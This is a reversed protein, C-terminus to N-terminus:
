MRNVNVQETRSRHGRADSVHSRLEIRAGIPANLHVPIAVHGNSDATGALHFHRDPPHMGPPGPPRVEVDLDVRAGPETMGEFNFVGPVPQDRQPSTIRIGLEHHAHPRPPPPQMPHPPHPPHFDQSPPGNETQITVTRSAADWHVHAGLAEAIFRLPVVTRGGLSTAPTDLSVHRGNVQADRSGMTLDISTQGRNARIERSQAIYVVTANLREFVGRMPVLVSGGQLVPQQDFQAPQGNITVTIGQACAPGALSALVTLAAASHFAFKM